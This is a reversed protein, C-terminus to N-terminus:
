EVAMLKLGLSTGDDELLEWPGVALVLQQKAPSLYM